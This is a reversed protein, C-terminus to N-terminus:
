YWRCDTPPRTGPEGQRPGRCAGGDGRLFVEVRHNGRQGVNALRRDRGSSAQYRRMDEASATDPRRRLYGAFGRVARVYASQTKDSLKHLTMDELMRQRLQSITQLPLSM